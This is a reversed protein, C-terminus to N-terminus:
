LEKEFFAKVLQAKLNFKESVIVVNKKLLYYKENQFVEIGQDTTIEIQNSEKGYCSFSLLIFIIIFVPKKM